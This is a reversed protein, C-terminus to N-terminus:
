GEMANWIWGTITNFPESAEIPENRDVVYILTTDNDGFEVVSIAQINILNLLGDTTIVRIFGKMAKRETGMRHIQEMQKKEYKNVPAM